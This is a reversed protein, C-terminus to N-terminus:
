TWSMKVEPETFDFEFVEHVSRLQCPSALQLNGVDHPYGWIMWDNSWIRSNFGMTLSPSEGNWLLLWQAIVIPTRNETSRSTQRNFHGIIWQFNPSSEPIIMIEFPFLYGQFSSNLPWSWNGIVVMPTVWFIRALKVQPHLSQLVELIGLGLSHIRMTHAPITEPLVFLNAKQDNSFSYRDSSILKPYWNRIHFILFFGWNEGSRQMMEEDHRM